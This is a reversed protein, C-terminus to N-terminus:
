GHQRRHKTNIQKAIVFALTRYERRRHLYNRVNYYSIRQFRLRPRGFPKIWSSSMPKFFNVDLPDCLGYDM